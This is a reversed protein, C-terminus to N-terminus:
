RPAGDGAPVHRAAVAGLIGLYREALRQRSYHEGVFSRGRAGMAAREAGDMARMRLIATAIEAAEGPAAVIGAGSREVIAAAEGGVSALVPRECAMVEFIKSPVTEQLIPFSALPVLCLDCANYFARTRDKPLPPHVSLNTVGREAIRREISAREPGDGALVFRVSPDRRAVEAAADVVRPLAQGAGFNGLYGVVFEGRGPRLAELPPEEGRAPYYFSTDVGNPIVDISERPVGKAAVRQRFSETVVVTHAARALLMRELAFLARAAAGERLVGMGVLYDPWLDRLELVLPIRRLTGVVAGSIHPFFPPSSAILVDPRGGRLLANLAATMMFTTNNLITRGFGHLPSAYLWSRLVRIGEWEERVFLRGRYEPHIRGVPRNPMGTVVTVEAGADRWCRAMEAVRAPGAGVEPPFQQALYAIKLGPMLRCSFSRPSDVM